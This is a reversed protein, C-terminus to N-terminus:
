DKQPAFQFGIQMGTAWLKQLPGIFEDQMKLFATEPADIMVATEIRVGSESLDLVLCDISAKQSLLMGSKLTRARPMRRRNEPPLDKSSSADNM